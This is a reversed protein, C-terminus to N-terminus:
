NKPKVESRYDYVKTTLPLIPFKHKLLSEPSESIGGFNSSWQYFLDMVTGNELEDSVRRQPM